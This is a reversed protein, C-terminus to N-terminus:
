RIFYYIFGVGNFSGIKDRETFGENRITNMVVSSSDSLDHLYDFYYIGTKDSILNITKLQTENKNASISDTAGFSLDPMREYWRYPAFPEPFSFLVVENARIRKEIYEVAGKWSERQQTPNTVYYIWSLVNLSLIFVVALNRFKMNKISLIGAGTLLYFSPVIYFLRFYTFAPFFFSAMFSFVIPIILWLFLILYKNIFKLSRLLLITFPISSVITITYFVEKDYSSVRGLTFKMWLLILQKLNAGGSVFNGLSQDRVLWSYNTVQEKFIPYWIVSFFIVPLFSIFLNLWWRFKKRKYIPYLLLMPVLFVPMYDTFLLIALSLSFVVWWKLNNGSQVLTLFSLIALSAFFAAMSYMRAEQSYYIHFQSTTLFAAVSLSIKRNEFIKEAIKYTIFITAVGFLISPLRLSLESYSFISTWFKLLLSYLPPHNDILLFSTFIKAFSYDRAAIAGIAEDLWFSQGIAILRLLLGLLLIIYILNRGILKRM